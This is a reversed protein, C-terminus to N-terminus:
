MSNELKFIEQLELTYRYYQYTPQKDPLINEGVIILSNLRKDYISSISIYTNGLPITNFTEEGIDYLGISKQDEFDIIDNKNTDDESYVMEIFVKDRTRIIEYYNILVLHNFLKKVKNKEFDHIILNIKLGSRYSSSSFKGSSEHAEPKYVPIIYTSMSSDILEPDGLMFEISENDAALGEEITVPEQNIGRNDGGNDSFLSLSSIAVFALVIISLTGLAAFLLNNYTNLWKM